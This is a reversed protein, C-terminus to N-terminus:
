LGYTLAWASLGATASLRARLQVTRQDLVLLPSLARRLHESPLSDNMLRWSNSCTRQHEVHIQTGGAHDLRVVVIRIVSDPISQVVRGSGDRVVIAGEEVGLSWPVHQRAWEAFVVAIVMFPIMTPLAIVAALGVLFTLTV